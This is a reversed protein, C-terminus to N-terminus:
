VLIGVFDLNALKEQHVVFERLGLLDVHVKYEPHVLNVVNELRDLPDLQDLDDQFFYEYCRNISL